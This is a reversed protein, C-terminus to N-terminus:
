ERILQGKTGPVAVNRLFEDFPVSAPKEKPWKFRTLVFTGFLIKMSIQGRRYKVSPLALRLVEQIKIANSTRIQQSQMGWEVRTKRDLTGGTMLPIRRETPEGSLSWTQMRVSQGSKKREPPDILLLSSSQGGCANRAHFERLTGEILKLAKAVSKDDNTYVRFSQLKDNFVIHSKLSFRMSDFAELNPGFIDQPIVDEIPWVYAGQYAFVHHADPIQQFRHTEAKKLIERQIDRYKVGMTSHEHAFNEKCSAKGTSAGECQRIWNRLEEQTRSVQKSNGWILLERDQANQPPRIFSGIRVGFEVLLGELCNPDSEIEIIRKHLAFKASPPERRRFAARAPNDRQFRFIPQDKEPSLRDEVTVPDNVLVQHNPKPQQSMFPPKLLPRYSEGKPIKSFAITERTAVAQHDHRSQPKLNATSLTNGRLSVNGLKTATSEKADTPKQANRKSEQIKTFRKIVPQFGENDDDLVILPSVDHARRERSSHLSGNFGGSGFDRDDEDESPVDQVNTQPAWERANKIEWPTKPKRYYSM